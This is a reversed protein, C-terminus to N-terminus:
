MSAQLVNVPPTVEVFEEVGRRSGDGSCDIARFKNQDEVRTALKSRTGQCGPTCLHSKM